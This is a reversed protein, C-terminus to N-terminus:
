KRPAAPRPAAPKPAVPKPAAPRPSPAVSRPVSKPQDARARELKEEAELALLQGVDAEIELTLGKEAQAKILKELRKFGRLRVELYDIRASAEARPLVESEIVDTFHKEEALFRELDVRGDQYLRFYHDRVKRALQLRTKTRESLKSLMASDEAPDVVPGPVTKAQAKPKSPPTEVAKKPASQVAGRVRYLGVASGTAMLVVSAFALASIGIKNWFMAQISREALTAAVFSAGQSARFGSSMTAKALHVTAEVLSAPLSATADSASLGAGMGVAPAIGRRILRKQLRQRGRCLRSEVTGVPWGLQRAAQEHTLGELCCLIVALRQADSLRNIEDDIASRLEARVLPDELQVAAEEISSGERHRHREAQLRARLSVRRAVRHLWGGLAERRQISRARRALILFTAQFADDALHIDALIRRCVALVMPGHRQVLATFAQESQDGGGAGFRELLEGDTLVGVTGLGFLVQYDQSLSGKAGTPAM